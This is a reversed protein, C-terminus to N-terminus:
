VPNKLRVLSAARPYPLPDLVVRKLLTYISGTAGMGLGLTLVAAVAFGPHRGLSRFGFRLDRAFSRWAEGRAERRATRLDIREVQRGVQRLDGFRDRAEREAQSRTLGQGMLEEIREELHFRLEEGIDEHISRGRGLALRFARRLGQWRDSM